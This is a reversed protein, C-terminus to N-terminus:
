GLFHYQANTTPTRAIFFRALHLRHQPKEDSAGQESGLWFEGAPIEVWEPEGHPKTWYAQSEGSIRVLAQAAAIRRETWRKVGFRSLWRSFVSSSELGQRLRQKVEGELDGQVRNSGVDRLCDAALVLNHYPEPEEKLGAIARVLRTTREMSQTSLYGAELLIVERWWPVAVRKLTYAVYDDRGAVALAALYEQFTLHSFAYVGEGRATLLGTREEIVRLFRNVTAEIEQNNSLINAFMQGLWKRLKAVEIEKSEQEQMYLALNQLMLRRDGLDFVRDKLIPVETVGRAEDWKGLLVDVAEEYLEARRDPLKVRDRHVMAIVTLMLPNIALERIRENSEVTQCLQETQDAAYAEASTGPGMQGIAILRHWHNLFHKVDALTFDRVTTTIYAEGLRASGTYGVIRSTVVYRCDPYARTFAEVLRSVRRRLNPDAVEDLGDLLIVARGENLWADFFHEPLRIREGALSLYLFELLRAHGETGDDPNARLFAVMKRLPLLVPLWGSEALGLKEQALKRDEALDRAYLLALYRLLTTKGSGPDGLVILRTNEQLAEHVSVTVTETTPGREQWRHAEGPALSAEKELWATEADIVRQRTARLTIYIQDLEIHVLRGRSRIAQLELYRNRSIIHQLYQGLASERDVATIEVPQEGIFVKAGEKAIVVSGSVDRGVAISEGEAVAAGAEEGQAIAGTGNLEAVLNAETQRLPALTVELQEASLVDSLLKEQAAIAERIKALEAQYDTM